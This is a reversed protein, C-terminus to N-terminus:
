RDISELRYVKSRVPNCWSIEKQYVRVKVPVTGEINVNLHDEQISLKAIHTEKYMYKTTVYRSNSLGDMLLLSIIIVGMMYLSIKPLIQMPLANIRPSYKKGIAWGAWMILMFMFTVSSLIVFLM